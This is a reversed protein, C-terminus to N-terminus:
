INSELYKRSRAPHNPGPHTQAEDFRCQQFNSIDMSHKLLGHGGSKINLHGIPATLSKSSNRHSPTYIIYIYCIYIDIYRTHHTYPRSPEVHTLALPM